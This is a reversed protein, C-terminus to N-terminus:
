RTAELTQALVSWASTREDLRGQIDPAWCPTRIIDLFSRAGRTLMMDMGLHRAAHILGDLEDAATTIEDPLALGAATIARVAATAEEAAGLLAQSVPATMPVLADDLAQRVALVSEVQENVEQLSENGAALIARVEALGETAIPVVEAYVEREREEAAAIEDANGERRAEALQESVADWRRMVDQAAAALEDTRAVAVVHEAEAVSIIENTRAEQTDRAQVLAGIDPLRDDASM